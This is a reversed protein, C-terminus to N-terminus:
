SGDWRRATLGAPALNWHAWLEPGKTKLRTKGGFLGRLIVRAKLAARRDGDLGQAIQRRYEAAARPLIRLIKDGAKAEPLESELERRQAEVCEIVAAPDDHTMDDDGDKLRARLRELRADLEALERPRETAKARATEARARFYSQMERAMKDVREPSLLEQELLISETVDRRVNLRTRAFTM